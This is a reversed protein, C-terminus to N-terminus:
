PAMLLPKITGHVLLVSGVVALTVMRTEDERHLPLMSLFLNATAQTCALEDTRELLLRDQFMRSVVSFDSPAYIMANVTTQDTLSFSYLGNVVSDYLGIFSHNLKALDYLGQMLGCQGTTPHVAAKPDILKLTGFLPDVLINNLCM